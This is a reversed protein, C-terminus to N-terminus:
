PTVFLRVHSLMCSHMYSLPLHTPKWFLKLKSVSDSVSVASPSTSFYCADRVRRKERKKAKAFLQRM